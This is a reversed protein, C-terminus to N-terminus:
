QYCNYISVFKYLLSVLHDVVSYQQVGIESKASAPVALLCLVLWQIYWGTKHM